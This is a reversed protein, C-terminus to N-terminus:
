LKQLRLVRVLLLFALFSLDFLAEELQRSSHM